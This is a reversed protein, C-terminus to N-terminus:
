AALVHETQACDIGPCSFIIYTLGNVPHSVKTAQCAALDPTYNGRDLSSNQIWMVSQSKNNGNEYRALSDNPGPMLQPSRDVFLRM